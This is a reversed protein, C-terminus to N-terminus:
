EQVVETTPRSVEQREQALLREGQVLATYLKAQEKELLNREIMSDITHPTSLDALKKQDMASYVWAVVSVASILFMGRVTRRSTAAWSAKQPYEM